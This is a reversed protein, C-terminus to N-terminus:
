KISVCHKRKPSVVRNSLMMVDKKLFNLYISPKSWSSCSKQTQFMNYNKRSILLLHCYTEILDQFISFNIRFHVAQNLGHQRKYDRNWKPSFGLSSLQFASFKTWRIWASLMTWSFFITQFMQKYKHEKMLANLVSLGRSYKINNFVQGFM